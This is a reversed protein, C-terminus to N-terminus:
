KMTYKVRKSSSHIVRSRSSTSSSLCTSSSENSSSSSESSSDEADSNESSSSSSSESSSSSSSSSSEINNTMKQISKKQTELRKELISTYSERKLYKRQNTCQYTWHGKELCKQCSILSTDAARSQFVIPIRPKRLGSM